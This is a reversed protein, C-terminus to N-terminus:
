PAAAESFARVADRLNASEAGLADARQADTLAALQMCTQTAHVIAAVLAELRVLGARSLEHSHAETNMIGFLMTARELVEIVSREAADLLSHQANVWAPTADDTLVERLTAHAAVADHVLQRVRAAGPSTGTSRPGSLPDPLRRIADLVPESYGLERTVEAKLVGKHADFRARLTAQLRQESLIWAGIAVAVGLPIALLWGSLLKGVVVAGATLAVVGGFAQRHRQTRLRRLHDFRHLDLHFSLNEVDRQRTAAEVALDKLGRKM